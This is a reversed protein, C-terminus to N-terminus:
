LASVSPRRHKIMIFKDNCKHSVNKLQNTYQWETDYLKYLKKKSFRSSNILNFVLYFMEILTQDSTFFNYIFININYIFNDGIYYLRGSNIIAVQCMCLLFDESLKIISSYFM